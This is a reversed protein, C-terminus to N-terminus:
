EAAVFKNQKRYQKWERVIKYISTELSVMCNCSKKQDTQKELIIDKVDKPINRTIILGRKM